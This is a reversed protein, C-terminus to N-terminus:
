TQCIPRVPLHYSSWVEPPQVAAPSAYGYIWRRTLHPRLKVGIQCDGPSRHRAHPPAPCLVTFRPNSKRARGLFSHASVRGGDVVFREHDCDIVRPDCSPPRCPWLSAMNGIIPWPPRQHLRSFRHGRLGNEEAKVRGRRATSREPVEIARWDTLKALKVM